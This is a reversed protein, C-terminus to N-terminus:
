RLSISADTPVHATWQREGSSLPDGTQYTTFTIQIATTNRYLMCQCAFVPLMEEFFSMKAKSKM